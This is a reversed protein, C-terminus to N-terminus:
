EKVEKVECPYIKNEYHTKLAKWDTGAPHSRDSCHIVKGKRVTVRFSDFFDSSIEWIKDPENKM